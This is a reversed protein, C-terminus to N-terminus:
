TSGLPPQLGGYNRWHIWWHTPIPIPLEGGGSFGGRDVLIIITPQLFNYPVWLISNLGCNGRVCVVRYLSAALWIYFLVMQAKTTGVSYVTGMKSIILPFDQPCLFSHKTPPTSEVHSCNGYNLYHQTIHNIQILWLTALKPILTNCSRITSYQLSTMNWPCRGSNHSCYSAISCIQIQLFPVDYLM